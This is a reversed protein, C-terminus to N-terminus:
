PAASLSCHRGRGLADAQAIDNRECCLRATALVRDVVSLLNTSRTWGPPDLDQTSGSRRSPLGRRSVNPVTHRGVLRAGCRQHALTLVLIALIAFTPMQM